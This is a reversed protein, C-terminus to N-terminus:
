DECQWKPRRGGNYPQALEADLLASGLDYGYASVRGVVRGAYKGLLIGDVILGGGEVFRRTFDTARKAADRECQRSARVEPTDVSALRVKARVVIQPWAYVDLEITDGDIVRVLDARYPGYLPGPDGRAHNLTFIVVWLLAVVFAIYLMVMLISEADRYRRKLRKTKM